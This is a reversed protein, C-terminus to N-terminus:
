ERLKAVHAAWEEDTMTVGPPKAPVPPGEKDNKNSEKTNKIQPQGRTLVQNASPQSETPMNSVDQYKDYNTITLISYQGMNQKTLEGTSILHKIATRVSQESLKTEKALKNRSIARSGRKIMVGHWKSDYYNVTLLLHMFLKFTNLDDYWEWKLLSRHLKVFGNELMKPEEQQRDATQLQALVLLLDGFAKVRDAPQGFYIGPPIPLPQRVDLFLHHFLLDERDGKREPAPAGAGM